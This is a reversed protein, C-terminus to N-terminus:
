RTFPLVNVSELSNSRFCDILFFYVDTPLSGDHTDAEHRFRSCLAM